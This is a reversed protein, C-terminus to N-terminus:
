NPAGDLGLRRFLRAIVQHAGLMGLRKALMEALGLDGSELIRRYLMAIQTWTPM